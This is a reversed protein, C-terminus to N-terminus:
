WQFKVVRSDDYFGNAAHNTLMTDNYVLESQVKSSIPFELSPSQLHLGGFSRRVESEDLDCHIFDTIVIILRLYEIIFM